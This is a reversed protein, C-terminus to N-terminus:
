DGAETGKGTLFPFLLVYSNHPSYRVETWSIKWALVMSHTTMEKELFSIGVWPDFRCRGHQYAPEQGSLWEPIGVM